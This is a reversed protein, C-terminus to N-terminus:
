KVRIIKPKNVVDGDEFVQEIAIIKNGKISKVCRSYPEEDCINHNIRGIEKWQGSKLSLFNYQGWCGIIWGRVAIIESFGDGDIDGINEIGADVANGFDINPLKCSFSITVECGGNRCDGWHEDDIFKPRRVFATDIIKDNNIDGLIEIDTETEVKPEADQASVGIFFFLLILQMFLIPKATKM